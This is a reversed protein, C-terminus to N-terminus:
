QADTSTMAPAEFRWGSDLILPDSTSGKLWERFSKRINEITKTGAETGQPKENSIIGSPKAGAGFFKAGHRELIAALGIAEKGLSVPSAGLFSPIHLIETHPYDKIGSAGSVRYVPAGSM